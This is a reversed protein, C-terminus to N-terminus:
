KGVRGYFLMATVKYMKTTRRLLCVKIIRWLGKTKITEEGACSDSFKRCHADNQETKKLM